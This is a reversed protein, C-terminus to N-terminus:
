SRFHPKVHKGGVLAVVFCPLPTCCPEPIGLFVVNEISGSNGAPDKRRVKTGCGRPCDVAHLPCEGLHKSLLAGYDGEWGCHEEDDGATAM